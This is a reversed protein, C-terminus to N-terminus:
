QNSIVRNQYEAAAQRLGPAVTAKHVVDEIWQRLDKGTYWDETEQNCEESLVSGEVGFM